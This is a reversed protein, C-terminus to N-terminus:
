LHATGYTFMLRWLHRNLALDVAENL